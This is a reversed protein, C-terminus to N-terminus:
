TDYIKCCLFYYNSGICCSGAQSSELFVLFNVQQLLEKGFNHRRQMVRQRYEVKSQDAITRLIHLHEEENSKQQQQLERKRDELMQKRQVNTLSTEEELQKKFMNKTGRYDAKQQALFQKM